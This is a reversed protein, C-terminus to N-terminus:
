LRVVEKPQLRILWTSGSSIGAYCFIRGEQWSQAAQKHLEAALGASYDLTLMGAHHSQQILDNAHTKVNGMNGKQSPIGLRRKFIM